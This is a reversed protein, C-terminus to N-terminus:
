RSLPQRGALSVAEIRSHVGLKRFINNIHNKVTTPSVGFQGAIARTGFGERLRELVQAERTTLPAAESDPLVQEGRAQACLRAFATSLQRLTREMEKQATIDCFITALVMRDSGDAFLTLRMAKLWLQKGNKALTLIESAPIPKGQKALTIAHCARRCLRAGLEDRGCIVEYCHRGLAEEAGIGLVREAAHNWLVIRQESDVAMVGETMAALSKLLDAM